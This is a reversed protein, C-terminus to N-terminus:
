PFEVASGATKAKLFLWHQITSRREDMLDAALRPCLWRFPRLFGSPFDGLVRPRSSYREIDHTTRFREILTDTVRPVFADHTEVLIDAERLEPVVHPNLLEVEGGEIDMLVLVPVSSRRLSVRLGSADCAGHLMIRDAVGNLQASQQLVTHLESITEFAEVRTSESKLAFGVAYYGDAAGINVITAYGYDIIRSITGHLELEHTGLFYGLLHRNSLPSLQIRM